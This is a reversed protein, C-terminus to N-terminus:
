TLLYTMFTIAASVSFFYQPEFGAAAANPTFQGPPSPTITGNAITGNVEKISGPFSCTSTSPDVTVQIGTGQFDCASDSANHSQFYANFAWSTHSPVNNPDYCAGGSQLPGCNVQGQDPLPGCVWDLAGQLAGDSLNSKAVCWVTATALKRERPRSNYMKQELTMMPVDEVDLDNVSSAGVAGLAFIIAFLAVVGTCSQNAMAMSKPM